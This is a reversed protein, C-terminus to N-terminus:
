DTIWGVRTAYVTLHLWDKMKVTCELTVSSPVTVEKQVITRFKVNEEKHVSQPNTRCRVRSVTGDLVLFMKIPNIRIQKVDAVM